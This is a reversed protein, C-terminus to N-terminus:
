KSYNQIIREWEGKYSSLNKNKLEHIIEDVYGDCNDIHITIAFNLNETDNHPDGWDGCFYFYDTRIKNFFCFKIENSQKKLIEDKNIANIIRKMATKIQM